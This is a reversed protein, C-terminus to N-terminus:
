HYYIPLRVVTMVSPLQSVVKRNSLNDTARFLPFATENKPVKGCSKDTTASM